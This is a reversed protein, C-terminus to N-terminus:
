GLCGPGKRFIVIMASTSAWKQLPRRLSPIALIERNSITNRGFVAATTASEWTPIHQKRYKGLYRGDADIVAATNYYTGIGVREYVPLILVTGLEKALSQFQQVTPGDPVEEAAEYWKTNQEACFYPGYFIEQLCIIQAGKAAAERVLRVHKEIAKEKHVHVPEDGHVDNKAQILGITVKNAM